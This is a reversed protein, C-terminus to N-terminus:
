SLVFFSRYLYVFLTPVIVDVLLLVAGAILSCRFARSLEKDFVAYHSILLFVFFFVLVKFVKIALFAM